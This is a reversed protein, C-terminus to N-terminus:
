FPGQFSDLITLITTPPRGFAIGFILVFIPVLLKCVFGIESGANDLVPGLFSPGRSLWMVHLVERDWRYVGTM